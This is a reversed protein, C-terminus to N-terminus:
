ALPWPRLAVDEDEPATRATKGHGGRRVLDFHSRRALMPSAQALAMAGAEKLLPSAEQDDSLAALERLVEPLWWRDDRQSASVRAADLTARAAAVDGAAHQTQALLTLWYPLRTLCEDARLHAIGVKIRGLGRETGLRWGSLILAWERYYAFSYRRCLESLEVLTEDLLQMDDRLQATVAAYALAVALTYPHDVERARGVSKTTADAARDDYGLLWWAHASWARAHVEPRTGVALSVAGLSMDYALDFHRVAVDPRGLSLASGGMSFHAQGALEPIRAGLEIARSALVHAESIQGQVFTSAWLGVLSSLQVDPRDLRAALQVSRALTERLESDAYGRWANLPASMAQRAELERHDRDRGAPLEAVIDLCRRLLRLAEANAFVASAVGAARLYFPLARESRGGRDYQEALEAAVDDIEDAYLLELAQALRRHELWRLAPPVSVYAADRLLDHTFDYGPGVQRLLRRRWLEDVSRVVTSEDLDSAEVLLELRFDRGLAAALAASERAEPTAQALRRQLVRSLDAPSIEQPRDAEVSTRAAEVVYLPYGGSAAHLLAVDDDALEHGFMRTALVTTDALALPELEIETVMGLSRMETLIQQLDHNNVLPDIRATTLVLLPLDGATELLYSIWSITEKDCWHLDDLVLLTPRGVVTVAHVLGQFFRHRQWSDVMARDSRASETPLAGPPRSRVLRELENRWAPDLATRATVFEPARLWEAVPSLAAGSSGFCRSTAVVDGQRRALTALEAVLRSKGVGPDGSVVVMGSRGVRAADWHEQITTLDDDRGVLERTNHTRGRAMPAEMTKAHPGSPAGIVRRLVASTEATPAVGLHEELVSACHHYTTMAGARDGAAVQLDMLRRYGVEEWPELQIRLRAVDLAASLDNGALVITLQDCVRLCRRQLSDRAELAWDDYVGPLLPGGYAALATHGAQILSEEDGAQQAASILDAALLFTRVDVACSGSDRWALSTASVDLCADDRVLARLHHLERRLNTRAQAETSDPWFVAALHQRSHSADGHATLYALLEIARTSPPRM